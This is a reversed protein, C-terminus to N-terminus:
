GTAPETFVAAGCQKTGAESCDEARVILRGTIGVPGDLADHDTLLATQTAGGWEHGTRVFVLARRDASAVITGDSIAVSQGLELGSKDYISSTLLATQTANNWNHGRPRTFVFVGGQPVKTNQTNLDPAGAVITAGEIAVSAGLLDDRSGGTVTLRATEHMNRWGAKPRSYVFVGRSGSGLSGVVITSGSIAVSCGFEAAKSCPSLEAVQHPKGSAGVVFVWAKGEGGV